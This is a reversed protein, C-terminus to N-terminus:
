ATSTGKGITEVVLPLEVTFTSGKGPESRLVIEGGHAKAIERATALGIGSGTQARVSRDDVRYMREFVKSWHEQAIGIGTDRVHIRVVEQDAECGVIVSGGSETYKLANGLLNNIVVGLKDRDASLVPLKSPLQAELEIGKNEATAQMDRVAEHLLELLNVDDRRVSMTGVDLQSRSLMEEVLRALRRTEKNIVNFCEAQVKPDDFEAFTETYAQINTLPTRLEHTVQAVFAERAADAKFQQSIDSVFVVAGPIRGMVPMVRVRFATDNDDQVTISKSEFQRENGASRIAEVLKGGLESTSMDWLVEPTRQDQGSQTGMGLLRRAMNNVYCLRGEVSVHMIGEPVVDVAQVLMMSTSCELAQNLEQRASAQGAADRLEEVLCVLENWAQAVASSESALRLSSIEQSLNERYQVLNSGISTLPQLHMRVFRAILLMLLLSGAGVALASFHSALPLPVLADLTAEVEVFLKRNSSPGGIPARFIAQEQLRRGRDPREVIARDPWERKLRGAEWHTTGIEDTRLSCVIEGDASLVRADDFVGSNHRRLNFRLLVIQLQDISQVDVKTLEDALRLFSANLVDVAVDRARNGYSHSISYFLALGALVHVALVALMASSPLEDRVWAKIRKAVAGLM